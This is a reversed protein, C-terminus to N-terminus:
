LNQIMDYSMGCKLVVSYVKSKYVKIHKLIDRGYKKHGNLFLQYWVM